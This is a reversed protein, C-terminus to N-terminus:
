EKEGSQPPPLLGKAIELAKECQEIWFTFWSIRKTTRRVFHEKAKEKTDYAFTNYANKGVRRELSGFRYRKIFYSHETERIVPHETLNVRTEPDDANSYEIEYRYLTKIM